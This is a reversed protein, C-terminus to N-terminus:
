TAKAIEGDNIGVNREIGISERCLFRTVFVYSDNEEHMETEEFLIEGNEERSNRFDALKKQYIDQAERVSRDKKETRSAYFTEEEISFPLTLRPFLQPTRVTRVRRATNDPLARNQLAIRYTLFLLTRRSASESGVSETKTKPIHMEFIPETDASVTGRARRLLTGSIRTEFFSSILLQGKVVSEGPAVEIGGSYVDARRVIGDCKAVINCVERKDPLFSPSKVSEAIEVRATVGSRNIHMWSARKEKVLYQLYLRDVSVDSLSCGEYFGLSSLTELVDETPITENGIVRISFVHNMLYAQLLFSLLLGFAIGRRCFIRRILSYLGFARFTYEVANQSLLTKVKEADKQMCFFSLANGDSATDSLRIERLLYLIRGTDHASDPIFFCVYGICYRILGTGM